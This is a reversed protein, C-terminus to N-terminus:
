AEEQQARLRAQEAERQEREREAQERQERLKALRQRGKEIEIEEPTMATGDPRLWKQGEEANQQESSIRATTTVDGNGNSTTTGTSVGPIPETPPQYQPLEFAPTQPESDLGTGTGRAGEAGRFDNANLGWAAPQLRGADIEVGGNGGPLPESPFDKVKGDTAKTWAWKSDITSAFGIQGLPGLAYPGEQLWRKNVQYLQTKMAEFARGRASNTPIGGHKLILRRQISMVKSLTESPLNGRSSKCYVYACLYQFAVHQPVNPDKAMLNVVDQQTLVM